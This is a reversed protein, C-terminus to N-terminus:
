GPRPLWAFFGSVAAELVRCMTSIPDEQRHESIFQYKMAVGTLLHRSSKKLHRAGAADSRVRTQPPPDGGARCDSAWQGSLSARGTREIAQVLSVSRQRESGPRACHSEDTQREEKRAAGSGTQVGAYLNETAQGDQEGKISYLIGPKGGGDFRPLIVNGVKSRWASAM